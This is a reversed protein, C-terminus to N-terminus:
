NPPGQSGRTTAPATAPHSPDGAVDESYIEGKSDCGVLLRQGKVTVIAVDYGNVYNSAAVRQERASEIQARPYKAAIAKAVADPVENAHLETNVLQATWGGGANGFTMQMDHADNKFSVTAGSQLGADDSEVARIIRADSYHAKVAAVLDGPVNDGEFSLSRARGGGITLRFSGSGRKLDIVYAGDGEREAGTIRADAYRSRIKGVLDPPVRDVPIKEGAWAIQVAMVVVIGLSQSRM